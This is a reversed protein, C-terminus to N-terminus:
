SRVTEVRMGARIPTVCARVGERGDVRVLCDFCVGMGCFIGRKDDAGAVRLAPEGAALLASAITDGARGSVPHENYDFEIPAPADGFGKSHIRM